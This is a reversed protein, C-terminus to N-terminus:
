LNKTSQDMYLTVMHGTTGLDKNRVFAQTSVTNGDALSPLKQYHKISLKLNWTLLFLGPLQFEMKKRESFDKKAPHKIHRMKEKLVSDRPVTHTELYLMLCKLALRTAM